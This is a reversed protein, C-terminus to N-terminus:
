YQKLKFFKIDRLEVKIRNMSFYDIPLKYKNSLECLLQSDVELKGQELKNLWEHSKGFLKAADRLSLGNLKRVSKIREFDVM